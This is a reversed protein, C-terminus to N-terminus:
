EDGAAPFRTLAPIGSVSLVGDGGGEDGGGDDGGGKLGVSM